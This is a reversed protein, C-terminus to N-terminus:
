WECTHRGDDREPGVIEKVDPMEVDQAARLVKAIAEHHAHGGILQVEPLLLQTGRIREVMADRDDLRDPVHVLHEDLVRQLELALVQDLAAGVDEDHAVVPFAAEVLERVDATDHVQRSGHADRRGVHLHADTAVSMQRGRGLDRLWSCCDGCRVYLDRMNRSLTKLRIVVTTRRAVPRTSNTTSACTQPGSRNPSKMYGNVIAPM